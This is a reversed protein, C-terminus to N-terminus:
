LVSVLRADIFLCGVDLRWFLLSSSRGSGKDLVPLSKMTTNREAARHSEPSPPAIVDYFALGAIHGHNRHFPPSL